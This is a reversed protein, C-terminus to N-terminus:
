IVNIKFIGKYLHRKVAYVPDYSLCQQLSSTRIALFCTFLHEVDSTKLSICILVVSMWIAAILFSYYYYISFLLYQSVHLLPLEQANNTPSYFSVAVTSFLIATGWFSLFLVRMHDLLEVELNIGLLISLLNKILYKYVQTWLLM